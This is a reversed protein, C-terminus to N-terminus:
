KINEIRKNKEIEWEDIPDQKDWAEMLKREQDSLNINYTKSMYLYARAIDGKIEDRVYARNADFDVEFKCEGYMGVKPKDAGYRFNSRDANLEGIAPVLNHMDAEMKNFIPDKSCAKRGGDKWCALHRGFNEAPMIHEWEIRNTRENEKGKKTLENRPVYGCSNRDIMNGKNSSDYKCGCYFTTQNDKYIEKLLKKSESFSEAFITTFLLTILLLIKKM